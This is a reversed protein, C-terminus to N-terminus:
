LLTLFGYIYAISLYSGVELSLCGFAWIDSELTQSGEIVIEPALYQYTGIAMTGQTTSSVGSLISIGFDLLMAVFHGNVMVNTQFYLRM